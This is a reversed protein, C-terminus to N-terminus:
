LTIIQARYQEINTKTLKKIKMMSLEQKTFPCKGQEDLVARWTAMGMVHGYPSIGPNVVPELTIPDTFGPLPNDENAEEDVNKDGRDRCRTKYRESRNM